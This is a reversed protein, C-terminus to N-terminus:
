LDEETMGGTILGVLQMKSVGSTRVDIDAVKQGLRLVVVRDAVRVVQDMNHTILLTAVDHDRLGEVVSLVAETQAVGLAAVPEDMVVVKSQWLVARAVAVAQRQGGSLSGAKATVPPLQLGLRAFTADLERRMRHKDLYFVARGVRGGRYLERGLYVNDVISLTNVLALNQFVTEVGLDRATRAGHGSCLQGDVAVEGTDPRTLGSIISVLTSKGAGNDGVLALVEGRQLDLSVGRLATVPGYRKSVSRVALTPENERGEGNGQVKVVAGDTGAPSMPEVSRDPRAPEATAPGARASATQAPTTEVVDMPLREIRQYLVDFGAAVVLAAGVFVDAVYPGVNIITLGDDLVGIFLIGALTGWLSGRGGTFAVGGLLIATLVQLELGMGIQVSAGDLQSTLILGGSAAAVGSLVYIICPMRRTSVGVAQAAETNAGIATLHRGVPTQYWCYAGVIFVGAFIVVPVPIGLVLGNGLVAFANGFGYRTADLTIWQAVGAAGAYGGLTVIVPNFKLYGVLIGNMLGWLGGVVLAGLISLGLPWGLIKDFQGFCAAGLGAVSGVSLDIKGSLLLMAGPVAVMGLVSVQLLITLINSRTLFASSAFSFYTGLVFLAVFLGGGQAAGLRRLTRYNVRRFRGTRRPAVEPTATPKGAAIAKM